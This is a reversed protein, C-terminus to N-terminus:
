ATLNSCILAILKLYTFIGYLIFCERYIGIFSIVYNHIHNVTLCYQINNDLVRIIIVYM